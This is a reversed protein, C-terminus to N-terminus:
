PQYQVVDFYVIGGQGTPAGPQQNYVFTAKFFDKVATAALWGAPIAISYSNWSGSLTNHGCGQSNSGDDIDISNSDHLWLCPVVIPPQCGAPSPPTAGEIKLVTHSTLTGRAVFTIKTYGAKHLDRGPTSNYTDITPTHMLDFGAFFPTPNPTCGPASVLGGTWSYRISRRSIPNSTDSFTLSQNEGGPYLFAGGGSKLEDQFIVFNTNGSFTGTPGAGSADRTRDFPSKCGILLLPLLLFYRKIM